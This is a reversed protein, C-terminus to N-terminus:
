MTASSSINSQHPWIEEGTDELPVLCRLYFTNLRSTPFWIFTCEKHAAWLVVCTPVENPKPDDTQVKLGM